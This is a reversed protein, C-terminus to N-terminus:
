ELTPLRLIVAFIDKKPKVNGLISIVQLDRATACFNPLYNTTPIM